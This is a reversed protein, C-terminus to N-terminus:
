LLRLVLDTVARYAEGEPSGSVVLRVVGGQDAVVVSSAPERSGFRASMLDEWDLWLSHGAEVHGSLAKRILARFPLPINGMQALALIRVPRAGAPQDLTYIGRNRLDQDLRQGWAKHSDLGARGGYM